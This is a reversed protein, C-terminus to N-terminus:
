PTCCPGFRRGARASQLPQVGHPPAFRGSRLKPYFASAISVISSTKICAHAAGMLWASSRHASVPGFVWGPPTWSPKDLRKYWGNVEDKVRLGTAFSIGLLPVVAVAQV